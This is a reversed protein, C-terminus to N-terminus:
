RIAQGIREWRVGAALWTAPNALELWGGAFDWSWYLLFAPGELDARRVTGWERSDRSWDRNDG